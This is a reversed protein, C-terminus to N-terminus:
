PTYVGGGPRPNFTPFYDNDTMTTFALCHSYHGFTRFSLNLPMNRFTLCQSRHDSTPFYDKGDDHLGLIGYAMPLGSCSPAINQLQRMRTNSWSVAELVGPTINSFASYTTQFKASAPNQATSYLACLIATISLLLRGMIRQNTNLWFYSNTPHNWYITRQRPNKISQLPHRCQCNSADIHISIPTKIM